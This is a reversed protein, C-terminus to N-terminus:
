NEEQVLCPRLGELVDEEKGERELIRLATEYPFVSKLRLGFTKSFMEAFEDCLRNSTAGFLLEGSQLNWIMDYTNSRPIARRTLKSRVVEKLERRRDKPMFELGEMALIRKEAERTYQTLAKSPVKRVDVRWSMALWPEKFYEMGNFDSDYMDLINVWGTAREEDSNEDLSRFAYRAIMTSFRELYDDPLSEEVRFRTFSGAGRILGM